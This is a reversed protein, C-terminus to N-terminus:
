SQVPHGNLFSWVKAPEAKAQGPWALRLWLPVKTRFDVPFKTRGSHDGQISTSTAHLTM